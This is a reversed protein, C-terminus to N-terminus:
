LLIGTQVIERVFPNSRALESKPFVHPELCFPTCRHAIRLLQKTIDVRRQNEFSESIFCIDVDSHNTATGKAHSGFLYIYDVQMEKRVEAVYEKIAQNITEDNVDM